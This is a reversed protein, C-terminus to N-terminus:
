YAQRSTFGKLITQFIIKFDLWLSWNHIYHLDCDVRGKMKDVTDTIGRWGNIQAWGTIGPKVKHRIMYGQVLARYQENHAVAHPRPGVISMSGQLVNIFQPLEDLSTHRLFAGFPTVRPDHPQAQPVTAGDESVTMTRFKWVWVVKGNLGYRRQRFLVPGPSTFKIILAILLMPLAILLLILSGLVLDEVRKLWGDVGYLPSDHISVMPVGGMNLWRGNAFNLLFPDPVLYVSATTDDLANVLQTIKAAESTPYAIFVYDILGARADHVLQQTDEYRETLKLGMWSSANIENILKLAGEGSGAIAVTRLNRGQSRLHRMFVQVVLRQLILLSPVVFAWSVMVLRSFEASIKTVFAWLLLLLGISVWVKLVNVSIEKLSALRASGYLGSSEGQLFFGVLAIMCANQYIPSFELGYAACLLELTLWIMVGDLIRSLMSLQKSFPRILGGISKTM